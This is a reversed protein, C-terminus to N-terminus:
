DTSGVCELTHAWGSPSHDELVVGVFFVAEGVGPLLLPGDGTPDCLGERGQALM